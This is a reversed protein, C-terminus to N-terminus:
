AAGHFALHDAIAEELEHQDDLAVVAVFGCLCEAVAVMDAPLGAAAKVTTLVVHM